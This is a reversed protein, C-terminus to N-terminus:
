VKEEAKVKLRMWNSVDRKVRFHQLTSWHQHMQMPRKFHQQLFVCCYHQFSGLCNEFQYCILNSGQM